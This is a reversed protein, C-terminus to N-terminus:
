SPEKSTQHGSWELYQQVECLLEHTLAAKPWDATMNYPEGEFHHTFSFRGDGHKACPRCIIQHLQAGEHIMRGWIEGCRLCYLNYSHHRRIELGPIVRNDPIPRSGLWRTGLFFDQRAVEPGM